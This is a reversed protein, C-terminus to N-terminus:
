TWGKWSTMVQFKERYFRVMKEALDQQDPRFLLHVNPGADM